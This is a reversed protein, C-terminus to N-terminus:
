ASKKNISHNQLFDSTKGPQRGEIKEKPSLDGIPRFIM